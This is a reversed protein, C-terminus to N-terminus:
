NRQRSNSTVRNTWKEKAQQREKVLDRQGQEVVFKANTASNVDRMKLARTVDKWLRRSEYIEQESIPQVVKKITKMAKTDVFMESPGNAKKAYMVGNWEGSLTLVVKKSPNM